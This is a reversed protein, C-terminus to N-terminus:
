IAGAILKSHIVIIFINLFIVDHFICREPNVYSLKNVVVYTYIYKAFCVLMEFKESKNIVTQDAYKTLNLYNTSTPNRM